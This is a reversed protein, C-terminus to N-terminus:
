AAFLDIQKDAVDVLVESDGPVLWVACEAPLSTVKWMLSADGMPADFEYGTATRTVSMSDPLKEANERGWKSDFHVSLDVAVKTGQPIHPADKIAERFAKMRHWTAGPEILEVSSLEQLFSGIVRYAAGRNVWTGGDSVLIEDESARMMRPPIFSSPQAKKPFHGLYQCQSESLVKPIHAPIARWGNMHLPSKPGYILALAEADDFLSLQPTIGAKLEGALRKFGNQALLEIVEDARGVPIPSYIDEGIQLNIKMNQMFAPAKLKEMWSKIYNEPTIYGGRSKLMGSECSGAARYIWQFASELSGICCCSWTPTHPYTNKEYTEEYLVYTNNGATSKFASVFKGTTITAGM